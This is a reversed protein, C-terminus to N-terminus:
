EFNWTTPVDADCIDCVFWNDKIVLIQACSPCRRFTFQRSFGEPVSAVAPSLAAAVATWSAPEPCFGTSQNSADAIGLEPTFFLEGASMVPGGSACAVHETRRPALRLVGDRDVVFTAAIVGDDDADARNSKLWNDLDEPSRIPTGAPLGRVADAIDPPGMYNYLRRM